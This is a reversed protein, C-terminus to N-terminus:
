AIWAFLIGTKIKELLCWVAEGPIVTTFNASPNATYRTVRQITANFYENSDSHYNATGYNMLFLTQRCCVSSLIDTQELNPDLVFGNLGHDRWDGVEESIDLLPTSIKVKNTDIVWVKRKKWVYMKVRQMLDLVKWVQDWLINVYFRHILIQRYHKRM